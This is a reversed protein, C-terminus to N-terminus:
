GGGLIRIIRSIRQRNATESAGQTMENSIRISDRLIDRNMESNITENSRKLRGDLDDMFLAELEAVNSEFSSFEAANRQVILSESYQHAIPAWNKDDNVGLVGLTENLIQRLFLADETIVANFEAHSLENDFAILSSLQGSIYLDCDVGFGILHAMSAVVIEPAAQRLVPNAIDEVVSLVPTAEPIAPQGFHDLMSQVNADVGYATDKVLKFFQYRVEADDTPFTSTHKLCLDQNEAPLPRIDQATSNFSMLAAVISILGTRWM